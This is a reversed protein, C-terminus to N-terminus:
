AVAALEQYSRRLEPECDRFAAVVDPDFQRGAQAVLEAVAADWSGASRYPRESTMADLTDAVAFIRAGLPIAGRELGDPYGRGDWREHHSRVVRLGEGRLLAVKGLLQEGLVSHTMMLRRESATLPGPKLLIRDPIGIKGVDHLLFGYELSPDRLLDPDIAGALQLAYQQVRQSHAGTATDKSELVAALAAVTERYAAQLLARQGREIELLRRLDQAYVLTQDGAQGENRAGFRLDAPGGLLREVISLLALPSFPKRLFADAGADRAAPDSEAGDSGTLLLVAIRSTESGLKLERCFSLGDLGPMRVDLVVVDPPRSAIWAAAAAADAAEDVDVGLPELTTRVLTRLGADDDVLLVRRRQEAPRSRAAAPSTAGYALVRDKGAWKAAYLAADARRLLEDRETADGPLAAVGASLTPLPQGRRDGRLAAGAREAVRCAAESGGEVLVAFEEGGIRFVEEDARVTRRLVVGIRRLVDDGAAHGRTDNVQKFDDLDLLIVALRGDASLASAIGDDLREDFARRNPLGTLADIRAEARVLALRREGALSAAALDAVCALLQADLEPGSALAVIAGLPEGDALLPVAVARGQRVLSQDACAHRGLDALFVDSEGMATGASATALLEDDSSFLYVATARAGTLEALERAVLESKVSEGLSRALAHALRVLPDGAGVIARELEWPAAGKLCYASAGAEMMQMVTEADDSGAHAVIRIAPQLERVRRTADVGDLVPMEVDMLIVDPELERARSVAEEGNAAEGVVEIGPCGELLLRALERAAPADDCLLLRIM